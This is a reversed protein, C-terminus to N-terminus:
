LIKMHLIKYPDYEKLQFNQAFALQPVILCENITNFTLLFQM